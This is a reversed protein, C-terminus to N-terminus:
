ENRAKWEAAWLATRMEITEHVPCGSGVPDGRMFSRLGRALEGYSTTDILPCLCKPPGDPIDSVRISM